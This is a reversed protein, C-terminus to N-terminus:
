KKLVGDNFVMTYTSNDMVIVDINYDVGNIKIKGYYFDSLINYIIGLNSNNKAKYAYRMFSPLSTDNEIQNRDALKQQLMDIEKKQYDKDNNETIVGIITKIEKYEGCSEILNNANSFSSNLQCVLDLITKQLKVSKKLDYLYMNAFYDDKSFYIYTLDVAQPNELYPNKFENGILATSDDNIISKIYLIEHVDKNEETIKFIINSHSKKLLLPTNKRMDYFGNIIKDKKPEKYNLNKM